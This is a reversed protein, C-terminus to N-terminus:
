DAVVGTHKFELSNAHDSAIEHAPTYTRNPRARPKMQVVQDKELRACIVPFRM